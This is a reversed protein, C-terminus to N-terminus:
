HSQPQPPGVNDVKRKIEDPQADKEKNKKEEAARARGDGYSIGMTATLFALVLPLTSLSSATVALSILIVLVLVLGSAVGVRIWPPVGLGRYPLRTGPPGCARLSLGLFLLPGLFSMFTTVIALSLLSGAEHPHGAFQPVLPELHCTGRLESPSARTPSQVQHEPNM